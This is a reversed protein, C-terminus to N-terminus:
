DQSKITLRELDRLVALSIDKAFQEPYKRMFESISSVVNDWYAEDYRNQVPLLAKYLKWIDAFMEFEQQVDANKVM